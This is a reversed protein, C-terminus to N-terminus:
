SFPSAPLQVYRRFFADTGHMDPLPSFIPYFQLLSTFNVESQQQNHNYAYIKEINHLHSKLIEKLAATLIGCRFLDATLRV